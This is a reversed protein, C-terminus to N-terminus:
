SPIHLICTFVLRSKKLLELASRQGDRAIDRMLINNSIHSNFLSRRMFIKKKTEKIAKPKKWTFIVGSV